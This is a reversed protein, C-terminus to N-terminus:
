GIKEANKILFPRQNWSFTRVKEKKVYEFQPPNCECGSKPLTFPMLYALLVVMLLVVIGVLLLVGHVQSVSPDRHSFM